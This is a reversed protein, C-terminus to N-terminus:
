LLEPPEITAKDSGINILNFQKFYGIDTPPIIKPKATRPPPTPPPPLNLQGPIDLPLAPIM